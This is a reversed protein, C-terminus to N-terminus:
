ARQRGVQEGNTGAINVLSRVYMAVIVQSVGSGTTVPAMDSAESEPAGSGPRRAPPASEPVILLLLNSYSGTVNTANYSRKGPGLLAEAKLDRQLGMM